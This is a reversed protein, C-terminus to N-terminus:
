VRCCLAALAADWRAGRFLPADQCKFRIPNRVTHPRHPARRLLREVHLTLLGPRHPAVGGIKKSLNKPQPSSTGRSPVANCPGSIYCDKGKKKAQPIVVYAPDAKPASRERVRVVCQHCGGAEQLLALHPLLLDRVVGLV